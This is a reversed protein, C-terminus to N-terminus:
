KRKTNIKKPVDYHSESIFLMEDSKCRNRVREWKKSPRRKGVRPVNYIPVAKRPVDYVSERAALSVSATITDTHCFYM